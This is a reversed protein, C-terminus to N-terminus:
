PPPFPKPLPATQPPLPRCGRDDRVRSHLTTPPFLHPDKDNQFAPQLLDFSSLVDDLKQAPALRQGQRKRPFLLRLHQVTEFRALVLLVDLRLEDLVIQPEDDINRLFKLVRADVLVIEDGDAGDPEDLRDVGETRVLVDLERRIGRAADLIFDQHIQPAGGLELAFDGEVLGEVGIELAVLQKKRINEPRVAIGHVPADFAANLLLQQFLRQRM